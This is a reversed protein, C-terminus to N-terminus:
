EHHLAAAPPVRAALWGPYLAAASVLLYLVAAASLLGASYVGPTVSPFADFLAFQFVLVTGLAAGFTAVVLIEGVFQACIQGQTAGAARRVGIERTRQTVNQWLVGVLGLAVIALMFGAIVARLILNKVEADIWAERHGEMTEVGVSWQGAVAALRERIRKEFVRPTGPRLRILFFQPPDRDQRVRRYLFPEESAFPSSSRCHDVVGVVHLVEETDGFHFDITEGLPDGDGFFTRALKRTVVVPEMGSVEDEEGFWRGAVLNLRLVQDLRDSVWNYDFYIKVGGHEGPGQWPMYHSFPPSTHAAMVEVEEFGELIGQV